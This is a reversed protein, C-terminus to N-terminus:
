RPAKAPSPLAAASARPPPASPTAPAIRDLERRTEVNDPDYGYAQRLLNRAQDVAGLHQLAQADHAMAPVFLSDQALADRFSQHADKWRGLRALARGRLDYALACSADVALAADSQRLAKRPRARDLDMEALYAHAEVLGEGLALARRAQQSAGAVDGAQYLAMALAGRALGEDDGSLPLSGLGRVAEAYSRAPPLPFDTLARHTRGWAPDAELARHALTLAPARAGAQAYLAAGLLDAEPSWPRAVSAEALEGEARDVEGSAADIRAELLDREATPIADGVQDLLAKSEALKGERLRILALQFTLPAFGPDISRGKKVAAEAEQFRDLEEDVAAAHALALLHHRRDLPRALLAALEEVAENPRGDVQYDLKAEFLRVAAALPQSPEAQAALARARAFHGVSAELKALEFLAERDDPVSKAREEFARRAEALRGLRFLARGQVLAVARDNPDLRAAEQAADLALGANADLFARAWVVLASASGPALSRATQAEEQARRLGSTSGAHLLVVAHAVHPEVLKPGHSLAYSLLTAAQRGGVEDREDIATIAAVEAFRAMTDLDRPDLILARQYALAASRRGAATDTAQDARAEELLQREDESPKGLKARWSDIIALPASDVPALRPPAAAFRHLTFLWAGLIAGTALATGGLMLRWPFERTSSAFAKVGSGGRPSVLAATLPYGSLSRFRDSGRAVRDDAQLLGSAWRELLGDDTFPGEVPGEPRQVRWRREESATRDPTSHATERRETSPDRDASAVASAGLDAPPDFIRLPDAPSSLAAVSSKPPPPRDDAAPPAVFTRRSCRPCTLRAGSEPIQRVDVELSAHCSECEIRM